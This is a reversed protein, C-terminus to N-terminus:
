VQVGRHLKLPLFMFIILLSIVFFMMIFMIVMWVGKVDDDDEGFLHEKMTMISTPRGVDRIGSTTNQPLSVMHLKDPLQQAAVGMFADVQMSLPGMEDTYEKFAKAADNRIWYAMTGFFPGVVKVMGDDEPLTKTIKRHRCVLLCVNRSGQLSKQTFLKHPEDFTADDELVVCDPIDNEVMYKWIAYHSLYCGIGGTGTFEHHYKRKQHTAKRYKTFSDAPMEDWKKGRTDVAPYHQVSPFGKQIRNKTKQWKESKEDNLTICLVLSPKLVSEFSM